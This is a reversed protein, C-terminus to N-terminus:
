NIYIDQYGVSNVLEAQGRIIAEFPHCAYCGLRACEFTGEERAKKIELALSLIKKASENTDPLNKEKLGDQQSLYWYSVKHINRKQCNKVLLCYIPLQMSDDKEEKNGTKFDIIHVSDTEPVYELWDIRGCLIINHDTSLYFNPPMNNQGPKLRVAKNSIPGPNELVRKLMERGREKYEQEEPISRFGGKKGTYKEWVTEFTELLPRKLRQEAPLVALAELVEHVAQGLTLYPNTINIKRRTKPDKYVNRLYYLRRCQLFDNMSSNSVWVSTYKDQPMYYHLEIICIRTQFHWPNGAPTM